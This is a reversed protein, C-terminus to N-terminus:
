PMAKEVASLAADFRNLQILTAARNSHGEPINPNRGIVEDFLELAKEWEGSELMDCGSDLLQDAWAEGTLDGHEQGNTISLSV